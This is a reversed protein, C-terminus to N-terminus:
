SEDENTILTKPGSFHKHLWLETEPNSRSPEIKISDFRPSNEKRIKYFLLRARHVPALYSDSLASVEVVIGLESDLAAEFFKVVFPELLKSM